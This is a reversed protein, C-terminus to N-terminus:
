SFGSQTRVGSGGLSDGHRQPRAAKDQPQIMVCWDCRVSLLVIACSQVLFFALSFCNDNLPRPLNKRKLLPIDRVAAGLMSIITVLGSGYGYGYTM